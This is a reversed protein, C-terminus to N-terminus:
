CGTVCQMLATCRNLAGVRGFRAGFTHVDIEPLFLGALLAPWYSSHFETSSLHQKSSKLGPFSLALIMSQKAM